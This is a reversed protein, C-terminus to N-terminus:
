QSIEKKEEDNKEYLERWQKLKVKPIFQMKEGDSLLCMCECTQLEQSFYKESYRYEWRDSFAYTESLGSKITRFQGSMMDFKSNQGSEAISVTTQEIKEKGIQKIIESITKSDDNRFWIKNVLNQIIVSSSNEDQLTLALSRYSQMSVVNICAFERSLSLFHWDEANAVMQYEDCLFFLPRRSKQKRSLVQKQFDLKIYTAILRALIENEGVGISLIVIHNEFDLPDCSNCFHEYINVDSVFVNTARTMESKIIGLTRDDLHFYEKEINLIAAHIAFSEKESYKNKLLQHKILDIKELLYEKNVILQHLEYFNVCPQYARIITIFDRIFIEAKELWYADSTNNKSLLVISKKVMNALERSSLHPQHLPNYRIEGQLSIVQICHERQYKKAVMRMWDVDSGKVDICLGGIKEKIFADLFNAIVASTKGSGISGTILVNQYLGKEDITIDAGEQMSPLVIKLQEKIPAEEIKGKEKHTYFITFIHILITFLFLSFCFYYVMEFIYYNPYLLSYFDITKHFFSIPFFRIHIHSFTISFYFLFLSIFCCIFLINKKWCFPSIMHSDSHKLRMSFLTFIKTKGLNGTIPQLDKKQM